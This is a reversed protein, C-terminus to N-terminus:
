SGVETAFQPDSALETQAPPIKGVIALIAEVLLWAGLLVLLTAVYPVPTAATTNAAIQWSQLADVAPWMIRVLAWMSMTYMLVCPIGTVFWVWWGRYTRWLWVTVALSPRVMASCRWGNEKLRVGLLSVVRVM